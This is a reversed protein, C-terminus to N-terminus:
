AAANKDAVVIENRQPDRDMLGVDVRHPEVDGNEVVGVMAENTRELHEAGLDRPHTTGTDGQQALVHHREALPPLHAAVLDRHESQV